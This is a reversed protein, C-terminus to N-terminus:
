LLGSSCVMLAACQICSWLKSKRPGNVAASPTFGNWITKKQIKIGDRGGQGGGRRGNSAFVCTGTGSTLGRGVVVVVVCVGCKFACLFALPFSVIWLICPFFVQDPQDVAARTFPWESACVFAPGPHTSYPPPWLDRLASVSTSVLSSHGARGKLHQIVGVRLNEYAGFCM